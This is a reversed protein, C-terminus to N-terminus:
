KKVRALGVDIYQGGGTQHCHVAVVNKGPKLAQKGAPTMDVVDYEATYGSLKGALVGNFYVDADEDHHIYLSLTNPDAGDPVTIERRLWIDPTNWTTRVVAGPTDRTGFGGPGKQWSSDDFDAKQWDGEPKTTTYRYEVAAKQAGPEIVEVQPATPMKAYEGTPKAGRSSWKKWTDANELLKIFVGGVVPRAQFGRQTGKDTWYWDSMPVRTPTEDLFKYVPAVLAEFDKKNDAMTATWVIWDLKTYTSRSDLPLGYKNQKTLYYAIEKQAVEKPYLNLGLLKDWVLNYKQSWTGAKDLTLRFHDGDAAEKVWRDAFSKAIDHVRKAEDKEGRMECLMAYVGLGMTAKISLNANHALHGAFDDTCLQNEPDFGKAELYKAWKTLVPWYKGAFDASNEMKTIAGVLIMLNGCEEVPMQNRETREGGGYVQGNAQPYTGLDHPAFDFKWRDTSAYELLPVVAGKALAPSLLLFHPLQPYFVDVTAICGNSFNEKSFSLAQGNADAVVKQAAISQRYALACVRAYEEGGAARCDSILDLDFKACRENLSAYDKAAAQLLGAADMGGKRWYPRLNQKMYQISFLDDYAIMAYRSVPDNAVKGLDVVVAATPKGDNVARPFRDDDKDALKGEKAFAEALAADDGIVASTQQPATLYLYGWDIRHDDGKSRLIPQDESGIVLATLDGAKERKAVVKQDLTNVALDGGASLYASVDHPKGDTSRASWTVYTLSRSLLELDEPLMPTLFTLTVRVGGGDFEYITRTPTVDVLSQKLAAVDKPEAGMIRFPKGDIRVLSRITHPKGTWHVTEGDTLNNTRSWISFYPDTAVLPVSPPRMPPPEAAAATLTTLSLLILPICRTM